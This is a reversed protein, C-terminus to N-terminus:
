ERNIKTNDEYNKLMKQNDEYGIGM